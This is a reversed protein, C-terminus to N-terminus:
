IGEHLIYKFVIKGSILKEDNGLSLWHKISSYFSEKWLYSVALLTKYIRGFFLLYLSGIFTYINLNKKVCIKANSIIM